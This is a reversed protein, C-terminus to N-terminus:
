RCDCVAEAITGPITLADEESLTRCDLVLQDHQVRCIIPNEMERLQNALRGSEIGPLRIRVVTSRFALTPLSGGGAFTSDEAVDVRADPVAASVARALRRARRDLDIPDALLMRLIPLRKMLTAPDRYLRLTAELAALTLKDPRLARMLPNARLRAILDTRGVVVGAQPGGLLKDGSFLTIEAGAALSERVTPEDWAGGPPETPESDFGAATEPTAAHAAVDRHIPSAGISADPQAASDASEIGDRESVAADSETSDSATRSYVPDGDDDGPGPQITILNDLRDILGSGLDDIVVIRTADPRSHRRALEVLEALTASQTFGEIRYNSTHVRLLAATEGSIAREYDGIRTRNTTGVEVMRCGAAAMIDPMRYSGGIEVLQGRSVIVERGAALSQLTLFTAGANNNVVLADEAGTLERLLERVHEHRDGREGSALDLELNCYGAATETIAEIAEEALPARGLGTHLVIGTANIVRRLHPRTRARLLQRVDLAISAADIAPTRGSRIQGRREDLVARIGHLVEGRAYEEGLPAIAPHRLLYDVSPLDRLEPSHPAARGAPPRAPDM